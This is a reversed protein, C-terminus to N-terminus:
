RRRLHRAQAVVASSAALLGGIALATLAGNQVGIPSEAAVTRVPPLQKPPGGVAHVPSDQGIPLRPLGPLTPQGGVPASMQQQGVPLQGVPLQGVPLKPLGLDAPARYFAMKPLAPVAGMSVAKAGYRMASANVPLQPLGSLRQRYGSPPCSDDSGCSGYARGIVGAANGCVDVPANVPSNVQNGGGISHRGNTHGSPTYYGAGNALVGTCGALADGLVAATNGCVNIPATVPANIQNGGGISHRGNTNGGGLYGATGPAVQTGGECGAVANGVANGCVNVPANVPAHIQNGGLISGHGSTHRGGYGGDDYGGDGYGTYGGGTSVKSGGQCGSLARGLVAATNGCVNIPANIPADIQNGGGISHRGNTHGTGATYGGSMVRTGGECGALAGGLVAATNGCANIPANIPAHVQNGGLISHRGNTHGGATYGGATRVKSGGQCGALSGGILGIANGCVNIPATVPANIQNGGGISRHGDTDALAPAAGLAVFSATLLTARATGKAWKRM